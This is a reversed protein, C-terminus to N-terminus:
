FICNDPIKYEPDCDEDVEHCDIIFENVYPDRYLSFEGVEDLDRSRITISLSQPAHKLREILEAVKM